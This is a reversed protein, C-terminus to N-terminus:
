TRLQCSWCLDYTSLVAFVIKGYYSFLNHHSMYKAVDETSETRRRKKRKFVDSKVNKQSFPVSRTGDVMASNDLQTWKKEHYAELQRDYLQAHSQLKKIQLEAWKCRWRLPQIFSSWHPTLKKRRLILLPMIHDARVLVKSLFLVIPQLSSYTTETM